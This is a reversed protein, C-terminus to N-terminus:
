KGETNIAEPMVTLRVAKIIENGELIAKVVRHWGDCIFGTDDLIIPYSLDSKNVRDMHYCFSKIDIEGWAEVGIDIGIIPLDFPQLDKSLEILDTVQWTKGARTYTNTYYHFDNIGLKNM